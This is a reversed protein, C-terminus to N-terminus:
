RDAEQLAGIDPPPSTRQALVRGAICELRQVVAEGISDIDTMISSDLVRDCGQPCPGNRQALAPLSERLLALARGRNTKMVASVTTASVHAIDEHWCDYDTVLAVLAYCLEAERCLKAEPMATMGIISAGWSRHLASEARTSFQPGEMVVYTGGRRPAIGARQGAGFISDVLCGCVPNGFPVHAVCGDGFFTSRRTVTKDIFQDVLVVSGPPIDEDLSGVASFSVVQRCGVLKLAAVNARVNIEHPALAHGPGHRQIMAVPVGALTGLLVESSPSGFPTLVAISHKERLDEPAAFGSGAFVGVRIM